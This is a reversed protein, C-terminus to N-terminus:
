CFVSKYMSLVYNKVVFGSDSRSLIYVIRNASVGRARKLLFYLCFFGCANTFLRQLVVSNFTFNPGLFRLMRTDTPARGYSDFYEVAGKHIYVAVWHSGPEDHNDMNVVYAGDRRAPLRDMPYVGRFIRKTKYDQSLVATLQRKYM